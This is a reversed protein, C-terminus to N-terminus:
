LFYIYKIYFFFYYRSFYLAAEILLIIYIYKKKKKVINVGGSRTNPQIIITLEASCGHQTSSEPIIYGDVSDVPTLMIHHPGDELMGILVAKGGEYALIPGRHPHGDVLIALSGDEPIRFPTPTTTTTTTTVDTTVATTDVTTPVLPSFTASFNLLISPITSFLTTTEEEEQEKEEEQEQEEKEEEEKEEQEKKEQEKKTRISINNVHTINVYIQKLLITFSFNTVTPILPPMVIGTDSQQKRRKVTCSAHYKGGNMLGRAVFELEEPISVYLDGDTQDFSPDNSLTPFQNMIESSTAFKKKRYESSSHLDTGPSIFKVTTAILQNNKSHDYISLELQHLFPFPIQSVLVLFRVSSSHLITQLPAIFQIRPPPLPATTTIPLTTLLLSLLLLTTLSLNFMM